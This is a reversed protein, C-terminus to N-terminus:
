QLDCYMTAIRDALRDFSFDNLRQYGYQVGHERYDTSTLGVEIAAAIAAVDDPPFYVGRDETIERFVPLDSLVMPCGAAMAELVPIGFGEYTSPFVFLNSLLYACRVEQDSLGTLLAVQGNLGLTKIQKVLAAGEGSDNGIIVLPVDLGRQKLLAIASILRHYNKRPEFHGVALVFNDPLVHNNKFETLQKENIQSFASADLGNYIVSINAAPYFDLIEQKMADSVTIVHDANQLSKRLVAKFAARSIVGNDERLGRVDHITMITKGGPSRVLPM